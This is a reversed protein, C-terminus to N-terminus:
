LNGDYGGSIRNGLCSPPVLALPLASYTSNKYALRPSKLLPEGQAELGLSWPRQELLYGKGLPGHTPDRSEHGRAKQREQRM